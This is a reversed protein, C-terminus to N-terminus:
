NQCLLWVVGLVSLFFYLFLSCSANSWSCQQSFSAFDNPLLIWEFCYFFTCCSNYGFTLLLRTQFTAQVPCSSSLKCQIREYSSFNIVRLKFYDYTFSPRGVLALYLNHWPFARYNTRVSPDWRNYTALIPSSSWLSSTSFVILDNLALMPWFVASIHSWVYLRETANLCRKAM